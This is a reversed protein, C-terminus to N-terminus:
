RLTTKKKSALSVFSEAWEPTGLAHLHIYSAFLNRYVIGDRKGTIGKGRKIRYACQLDDLPLLSSHHFEHGRLTIGVPFLPNKRMVEAVVYGHGEPRESLQVQSPIVGVMEYSHNKWSISRCLYMLGACEAYVPLGEEVAEAIDQRLGRNGELEKLFFEPFGGGIYLGDVKPLRDQFSDIFLLEAGENALAEFNEPYYFNFARDRIVGIKVKSGRSRRM